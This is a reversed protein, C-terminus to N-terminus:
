HVRPHLSRLSLSRFYSASCLIADTFTATHVRRQAENHKDSIFVVLFTDQGPQRQLDPYTEFVNNFQHQIYGSRLRERVDMRRYVWEFWVMM